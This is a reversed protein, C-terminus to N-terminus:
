TSRCWDSCCGLHDDDCACCFWQTRLCVARRACCPKCYDMVLDMVPSVVLGTLAQQLEHRAAQEHERVSQILESSLKFEGLRYGGEEGLYVHAAFSTM